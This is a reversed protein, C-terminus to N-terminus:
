QKSEEGTEEQEEPEEKEKAPPAEPPTAPMAAAPLRRTQTKRVIWVIILVIVLAGIGILITNTLDRTATIFDGFGSVATPMDPSKLFGEGLRQIVFIGAGLIILAIILNRLASM